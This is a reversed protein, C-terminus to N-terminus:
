GLNERSQPGPKRKAIRLALAAEIQKQFYEAGLVRNTQTAQRVAKLLEPDFTCGFCAGTFLKGSPPSEGLGSIIKTRSL